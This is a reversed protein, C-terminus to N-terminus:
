SKKLEKDDVYTTRRKGKSDIWWVRYFDGGEGQEITEITVRTDQKLKGMGVTTGKLMIAADGPKFSSQPKRAAAAMAKKFNEDFDSV